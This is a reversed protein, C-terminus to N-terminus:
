SQGSHPKEIGLLIKLLTTKGGGNPGILGLFDHRSIHLTVEELVTLPEPGIGYTFTVNEMSAISDTKM